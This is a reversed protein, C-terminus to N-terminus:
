ALRERAEALRQRTLPVQRLRLGTANYVANAIAAPVAASTAEGAGVSPLNPQDLLVIDIEPTEHFSLIPCTNWELSTVGTPTFTVEQKLVRATAQIVNGEIQNKVGDPNVILGCDHAVTVRQVRIGAESVEVDAIVAVYANENEYQVFALGRGQTSEGCWAKAQVPQPVWRAQEAVATLVARARADQLYRLRFELPDVHAAFAMEDMFSENAFTNAVAGLGRLASPRLPSDLPKIWHTEVRCNVLTYNLPANRNGGGKQGKLPVGRILQGALLGAAGTRANPRTLHTPTWNQFHWAVLDGTANLGGKVRMIMAPGKPNWGHEDARSWQVRVPRGCRKSLWAADAAADDAGNHGYCGSAQTYIVHVASEQMELLDALASRLAYVGQTGSWITAEDQRVDALACSPGISDHNQYPWRYEAEVIRAAQALQGAADGHDVQVEPKEAMYKLRDYLDGPNPLTSTYGWTVRLADAAQMAVWEDEAVVGIFNGEYILRAGAPLRSADIHAISLGDLRSAGTIPPRIVRGHMMGPVRIDHMYQFHGFVKAPIDLRPLSKGVVRFAEPAREDVQPNVPREFSRGAVLEAYTVYREASDGPYMVRGEVTDLVSPDVGMRRAGEELLYQRASAAARRIQAGGVQITKSGATIGQNPTLWTDGQVLSVTEFSVCLEEATIQCLATKVGTGLEVKGSYLVIRGDDRIALWADLAHIDLTKQVAEVPLDPALVQAALSRTLSFGVILASCGQLFNRRSLRCDIM